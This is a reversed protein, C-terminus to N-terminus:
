LPLGDLCLYLKSASKLVFPFPFPIQRLKTQDPLESDKGLIQWTFLQREDSSNGFHTSVWESHSCHTNHSKGFFGTVTRPQPGQAWWAHATFSLSRLEQLGLTAKSFGGLLREVVM